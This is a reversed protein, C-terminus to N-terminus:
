GCAAFYRPSESPPPASGRQRRVVGRVPVREFHNGHGESVPHRGTVTTVAHRYPIKGDCSSQEITVGDRSDGM